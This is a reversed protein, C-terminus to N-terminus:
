QSHIHDIYFLLSNCGTLIEDEMFILMIWVQLVLILSLTFSLSFNLNTRNGDLYFYTCLLVYGFFGIILHFFHIRIYFHGHPYRYIRRKHTDWNFPIVGVFASFRFLMGVAWFMRDSIM